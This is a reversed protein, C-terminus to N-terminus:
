LHWFSPEPERVWFVSQQEEPLSAFRRREVLLTSVLGPLDLVLEVLRLAQELLESTLGVPRSVREAM